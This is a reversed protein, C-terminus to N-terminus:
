RSLVVKPKVAEAPVGFVKGLAESLLESEWEFGCSQLKKPFVRQGSLVIQAQEGLILKLAWEPAPIWSPRKLSKALLDAFDEMRVPYPSVANVPGEAFPNECAFLIARILDKEHIWSMWQRGSGMPGGAFLKFIPTLKQLVGGSPGLVMGIRLAVRRSSLVPSLVETEWDRCLGSLFGAGGSSVETKEADASDGYFGIASANVWVAPPKDCRKIAEAIARTPLIRSERLALKRRSTWRPGAVSEGCLNVVADAGDLTKVWEGSGRADWHVAFGDASSEGRTLCIVEDGGARAEKALMRGIWGSGGAIVM